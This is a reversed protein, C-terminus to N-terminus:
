RWTDLNMYRRSVDNIDPSLYPYGELASQWQRKDTHAEAQNSARKSGKREVRQNL